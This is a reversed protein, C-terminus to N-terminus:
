HDAREEPLLGRRRRYEEIYKRRNDETSHRGPKGHDKGEDAWRRLISSIYRWNRKNEGVAIRFAENIWDWPYLEEAEKLEEALLSSLM